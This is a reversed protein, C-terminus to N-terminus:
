TCLEAPKVRYQYRMAMDIVHKPEVIDPRQIEPITRHRDKRVIYGPDVQSPDKLIDEFGRVKAAAERLKDRV